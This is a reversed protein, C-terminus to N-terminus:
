LGQLLTLMPMVSTIIAVGAVLGALALLIPELLASATDLTHRVDEECLAAARRAMRELQGTEYGIDMLSVVLPPFLATQRLAEGLNAGGVIERRITTIAAQEQDDLSAEKMFKLALDVTGGGDLLLALIELMRLARSKAIVQEVPPFHQLLRLARGQLRYRFSPSRMMVACWGGLGLALFAVLPSKLWAILQGLWRNLPPLELRLSAFLEQNLPFIYLFFLVSLGLTACGLLAPYTVASIVTRKLQYRRDQSDALRALVLPLRGSSEAAAVLGTMVPDFVAPFARMADSLTFGERLQEALLLSVGSLHRDESFSALRLADTITVGARIMVALQRFFLALAADGVTVQHQGTPVPRLRLDTYGQSSLWFEAQERDRAWWSGRVPLHRVVDFAEFYYLTLPKPGSDFSVKPAEPKLGLDSRM